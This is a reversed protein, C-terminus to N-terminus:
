SKQGPESNAHENANLPNVSLSEQRQDEINNSEESGGMAKRFGKIASGLDSGLNKLKKTGFLLLVIVLIVILETIGFGGFM